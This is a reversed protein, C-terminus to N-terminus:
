TNPPISLTVTAKMGYAAALAPTGVTMPLSTSKVSVTAACREHVPRAVARDRNTAGAPTLLLHEALGRMTRAEWLHHSLRQAPKASRARVNVLHSPLRCGLWPTSVVKLVVVGHSPVSSATYSGTFPGLDKQNWLDRVTAAGTPIGITSWQVTMSAASGTRNFLAVARTNTGAMPKSWIELNASPTAVVTGQAGLSDQDVAIIDPNTLIATTAV